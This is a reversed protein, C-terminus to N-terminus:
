PRRLVYVRGSRDARELELRSSWQKLRADVAPWEAPDYLDPHVIVHSVGLDTLQRVSAEDPFNTMSEYLRVFEPPRIGSYGEVTKLWNGTTHLM